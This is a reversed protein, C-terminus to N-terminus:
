RAKWRCAAFVSGSYLLDLLIPKNASDQPKFDILFKASGGEPSQPTIALLVNAACDARNLIVSECFLHLAVSLSVLNLVCKVGVEKLAKTVVPWLERLYKEAACVASKSGHETSPIASHMIYCGIQIYVNYIWPLVHLLAYFPPNLKTKILDDPALM